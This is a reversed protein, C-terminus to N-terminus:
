ARVAAGCGAKLEEQKTAVRTFRRVSRGVLPWCVVLCQRIPKNNALPYCTKQILIKKSTIIRLLSIIEVAYPWHHAISSLGGSERM